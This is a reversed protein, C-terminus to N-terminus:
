YRSGLRYELWSNGPPGHHTETLAIAPAAKASHTTQARVKAQAAAIDPVALGRNDREVVLGDGHGHAASDTEVALLDIESLEKGAL